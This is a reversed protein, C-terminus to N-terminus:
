TNGGETKRFEIRGVFGFRHEAPQYLFVADKPDIAPLLRLERGDPTATVNAELAASVRARFQDNTLESFVARRADRWFRVPQLLIVLARYVHLVPIEGGHGGCAHDYAQALQGIFKLPDFGHPILGIVREELARDIARATTGATRRGAVTVTREAPDVKLEVAREVILTPWQGDIRWRRLRCLDRIDSELELVAVSAAQDAVEQAHAVAARLDTGLLPSDVTARLASSLAVPDWGSGNKAADINKLMDQFFARREKIELVLKDVDEAKMEAGM